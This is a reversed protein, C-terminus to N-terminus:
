RGVRTLLANLEEASHLDDGFPKEVAVRSGEPLDAAILARLAAPFTRSPLALYVAVPSAAPSGSGSGAARVIRVVSDPDDLDVQRYRLRSVVAQRAEDPLEGAHDALRTDVHARFQEDTWDQHGGGIVQVEDPLRGAAVLLALAPLLFRGALDGTAGLLVLRTIM